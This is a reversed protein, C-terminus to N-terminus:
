NLARKTGNPITCCEVNSEWSSLIPRRLPKTSMDLWSSAARAKTAIFPFTTSHTARPSAEQVEVSELIILQRVCHYCSRHRRPESGVLTEVNRQIQHTVDCADGASSSTDTSHWVAHDM